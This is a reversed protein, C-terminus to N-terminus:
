LLKGSILLIETDARKLQLDGKAFNESSRMSSNGSRSKAKILIEDIKENLKGLKSTSIKRDKGDFSFTKNKNEFEVNEENKATKSKFHGNQVTKAKNRIIAHQKEEEVSQSETKNILNGKLNKFDNSNELLGEEKEAFQIQKEKPKENRDMLLDIGGRLEVIEEESKESIHRSNTDCKILNDFDEDIKSVRKDVIEPKEVKSSIKQDVIEEKHKKMQQIRREQCKNTIEKAKNVLDKNSIEKNDKKPSFTEKLIRENEETNHNNIDKISGNSENLEDIKNPSCCIQNIIHEMDRIESSPRNKFFSDKESKRGEEIISRVLGEMENSNISKRGQEFINKVFNEMENSNNLNTSKRGETLIGKIINEMEIANKMQQDDLSHRAQEKKEDFIKQVMNEFDSSDYKREIPREPSFYDNERELPREPSSYEGNRLSIKMYKMALKENDLQKELPSKQSNSPNTPGFSEYMDYDLFFQPEKEVHGSSKKLKEENSKRLNDDQQRLLFDTMPTSITEAYYSTSHEIFPYENDKYPSTTSDNLHTGARKAKDVHIMDDLRKEELINSRQLTLPDAFSSFLNDKGLNAGGNPEKYYYYTTTNESPKM